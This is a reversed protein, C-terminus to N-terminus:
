ENRDCESMEGGTEWKRSFKASSYWCPLKPDAALAQWCETWTPPQGQPWLQGLEGTEGPDFGADDEEWTKGDLIKAEGTAVSALGPDVAIAMQAARVALSVQRERSSARTADVTFAASAFAMEIRETDRCPGHERNRQALANGAVRPFEGAMLRTFPSISEGRAYEEVIRLSALVANLWERADAMLSPSDPGALIAPAARRAQRAAWAVVVRPPLRWLIAEIAPWDIEERAPM